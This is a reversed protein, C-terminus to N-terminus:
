PRYWVRRGPGGQNPDTGTHRGGGSRGDFGGGSFLTGDGIHSLSQGVADDHDTGLRGRRIPEDNFGLGGLSDIGEQLPAHEHDQFSANRAYAIGAEPMGEEGLSSFFGAPSMERGNVIIAPHAAAMLDALSQDTGAAALQVAPLPAPNLYDELVLRSGDDRSFVLDYGELGVFLGRMSFNLEIRLQHSLGKLVIQHGPPPMYLPHSALM